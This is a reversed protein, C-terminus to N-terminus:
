TKNARRQWGGDEMRAGRAAEARGIDVYLTEFTGGVRDPRFYCSHGGTYWRTFIGRASSEGSGAVLVTKKAHPGKGPMWGTRGLCGYPWMLRGWVWDRVKWYWKDTASPDGAVVADDASSYAIAAGLDGHSWWEMVGNRTVDAECAAGTLIMGGVRHGREILRRVALLTIVAGNSHAVFWLPAAPHNACPAKHPLYLELEKVLDAAVYRNKFWNFRPFPGEFYSETIVQVQPDRAAMWARFKEPWTPDTGGNMIGHVAAIVVKM